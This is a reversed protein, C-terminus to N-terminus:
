LKSWASLTNNIRAKVADVAPTSQALIREVQRRFQITKSYEIADKKRSFQGIKHVGNVLICVDQRYAKVFEITNITNVPSCKVCKFDGSQSMRLDDCGCFQCKIETSM